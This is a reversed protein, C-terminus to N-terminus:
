KHITHTHTRTDTDADTVWSGAAGWPAKQTWWHQLGHINEGKQCWLKRCFEFVGSSCLAFMFKKQLHELTLRFGSDSADVEGGLPVKLVLSTPFLLLKNIPASVSVPHLSSHLQPQAICATSPICDRWAEGQWIWERCHVCHQLIWVFFIINGSSLCSDLSNAAPYM